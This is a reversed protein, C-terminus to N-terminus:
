LDGKFMYVSFDLSGNRAKSRDSVTSAMALQVSLLSLPAEVAGTSCVSVSGISVAM